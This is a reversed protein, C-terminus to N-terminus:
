DKEIMLYISDFSEKTMNDPLNLENISFLHLQVESDGIYYFEYWKQKKLKVEALLDKYDENFNLLLTKVEDEFGQMIQLKGNARVYSGDVKVLYSDLLELRKQDYQLSEETPELFSDRIQILNEVEKKLIEINQQIKIHVAVACKIQASNSSTLFELLKQVEFNKM